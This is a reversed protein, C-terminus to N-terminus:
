NRPAEKRQPAKEKNPEIPTAPLNKKSRRNLWKVLFNIIVAAAIIVAAIALLWM